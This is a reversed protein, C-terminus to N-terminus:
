FRDYHEKMGSLALGPYPEPMAYLGLSLNRTCILDAPLPCSNGSTLSKGECPAKNTVQIGLIM